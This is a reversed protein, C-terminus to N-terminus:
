DPPRPRKYDNHKNDLIYKAARFDGEKVKEIIKSEALDCMSENGIRIAVDLDNSFNHDDSLWRYLTQRSLGLKQCVYS